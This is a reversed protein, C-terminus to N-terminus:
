ALPFRGEQILRNFFVSLPTFLEIAAEKLLRPSTLDLGSAKTTNLNRLVDRVEIPTITLSELPPYQPNIIEPLLPPVGSLQTQHIFLSNFIEAKDLNDDYVSDHYTIPPIM